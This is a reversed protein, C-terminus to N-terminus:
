NKFMSSFFKGIKSGKQEETAIGTRMEIKQEVQELIVEERKTVAIPEVVKKNVSEELKRCARLINLTKGNEDLLGEDFKTLAADRDQEFQSFIEKFDKVDKDTMKSRKETYVAQANNFAERSFGLKEKIAKYLLEDHEENKPQVQVFSVFVLAEDFRM